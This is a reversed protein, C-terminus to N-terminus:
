ICDYGTGKRAIKSFIVSGLKFNKVNLAFFHKEGGIILIIKNILDICM